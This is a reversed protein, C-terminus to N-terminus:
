RRRSPASATAGIYAIRGATAVEPLRAAVDVEAAADYRFCEILNGDDVTEMDPPCLSVVLDAPLSTALFREFSTSARRGVTFAAMAVGGALGALLALVLTARWRRRVIAGVRMRILDVM